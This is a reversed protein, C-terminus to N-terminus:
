KISEFLRYCVSRNQSTLLVKSADISRLAHGAEHVRKIASAIQVIYSWMTREPIPPQQGILLGAQQQNYQSTAPTQFRSRPSFTSTSSSNSSGLTSKTQKLHVDFLTQANPHYAYVVVLALSLRSDTQNSMLPFGRVTIM